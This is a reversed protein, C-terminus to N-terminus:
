HAEHCMKIKIKLRSDSATTVGQCFDWPNQGRARAPVAVLSLMAAFSLAAITNIFLAPCEPANKNRTANSENM